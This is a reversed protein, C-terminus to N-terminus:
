HGELIRNTHGEIEEAIQKFRQYAKDISMDKLAFMKYVFRLTEEDEEIKDFEVDKITEKRIEVAKKMANHFYQIGFKHTWNQKFWLNEIYAIGAHKKDSCMVGSLVIICDEVPKLCFGDPILSLNFGEWDRPDIELFKDYGYSEGYFEKGNVRFGALEGRDNKILVAKDVL